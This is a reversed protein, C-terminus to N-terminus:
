RRRSRLLLSLLLFGLVCVVVVLLFLVLLLLLFFFIPGGHHVFFVCTWVLFVRKGSKGPCWEVLFCREYGPCGDRPRSFDPDFQYLSGVQVALGCFCPAAVPLKLTPHYISSFKWFQLLFRESRRRAADVELKEGVQVDASLWRWHDESWSWPLTRCCLQNCRLNNMTIM